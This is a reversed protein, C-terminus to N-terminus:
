EDDGRRGTRQRRERRIDEGERARGGIEGVEAVALEVVELRQADAPSARDLREERLAVKGRVRVVKRHEVLIRRARAELALAREFQVSRAVGEYRGERQHVAIRA